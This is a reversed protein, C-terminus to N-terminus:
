LTHVACFFSGREEPEFVEPDIVFCNIIDAPHISYGAAIVVVTKKLFQIGGGSVNGEIDGLTRGPVFALKDIVKFHGLTGYPFAKDKCRNGEVLIEERILVLVIGPVLEHFHGLHDAGEDGGELPSGFSFIGSLIVVVIHIFVAIILETKRQLKVGNKGSM